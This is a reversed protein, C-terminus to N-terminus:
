NRSTSRLLDVMEKATMDCGAATDDAESTEAPEAAREDEPPTEAADAAEPEVNARLNDLDARLRANERELGRVDDVLDSVLATLESVGSVSSVGLNDTTDTAGEKSGSVSSVDGVTDHSDTTVGTTDASEAAESAVRYRIGESTERREVDGRKLRRYITRTSVGELDALEDVTYWQRLEVVNDTGM